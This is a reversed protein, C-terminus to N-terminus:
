RKAFRCTMLYPTIKVAQERLEIASRLKGIRKTLDPNLDQVAFLPDSSLRQLVSLAFDSVRYRFLKVCKIRLFRFITKPFSRVKIKGFYIM